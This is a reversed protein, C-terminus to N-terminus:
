GKIVTGIGAQVSVVTQAVAALRQNTVGVYQRYLREPLRAPAPSAGVEASVLVFRTQPFAGLVRILATIQDDLWAARVAESHSSEPDGLLVVALWQNVADILIQGGKNAQAAETAAQVLHKGAHITEWSPPRLSQLQALRSSFAPEEPPASGLVVAALDPRLAQMALESKGAYAPGILLIPAGCQTWLPRSPAQL